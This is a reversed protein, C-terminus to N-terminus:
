EELYTGLSLPFSYKNLIYFYLRCTPSPALFGKREEEKERTIIATAFVQSSVFLKKPRTKGSLKPSPHNISKPQCQM